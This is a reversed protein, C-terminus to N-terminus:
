FTEKLILCYDAPKVTKYYSLQRTWNLVKANLMKAKFKSLVIM